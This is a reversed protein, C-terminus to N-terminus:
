ETTCEPAGRLIKVAHGENEVVTEEEDDDEDDSARVRKPREIRTLWPRRIVCLASYEVLRGDRNTPEEVKVRGDDGERKDLAVVVATVAETDDTATRREARTRKAAYVVEKARTTAEGTRAKSLLAVDDDSDGDSDDDDRPAEKDEDEDEAAVPMEEEDTAGEETEERRPYTEGMMAGAECRTEFHNEVKDPLIFALTSQEAVYVTPGTRRRRRSSVSSAEAAGSGGLEAEEEDETALELSISLEAFVAPDGRGADGSTCIDEGSSM